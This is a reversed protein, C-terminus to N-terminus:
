SIDTRTPSHRRRTAAVADLLVFALLSLGFLPMLWGLAVAALVLGFTVPQSLARAVGRPALAGPPRSGRTPRRQWWMRYGWFVMALLGVAMAALALQSVLGFLSGMHALIGIRTLKAMLPFDRWLLTETIRGTYPDVAVQDRQVPWTDASEAVTFVAGPKEPPTITLPGELGAGRAVDLVAQEGIRPAASVGVPDATLSPTNDHLSTVLTQFRDGAFQSWTLGTASIFLLALTLWVGVAGHWGRIRRRGAPTGPGHPVVLARRRVRRRGTWLALGGLALVPLWSAAMESYIRGPDGLLLNRHLADLTTQLPPTDFWTDLAGRVQGSYPDVYVTRTTDAALGPVSLAVQTTRDPDSPVVVSSLTGEPHATLAASVQQDLPRVAGDHAGVLLEHGYVLDNLQPSFVYALGTLCAVVLFPAVLVGAYFHLRLALPRLAAWGQTPADTVPTGAVPLEPVPTESVPTEPAPPM